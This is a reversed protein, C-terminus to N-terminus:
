YHLKKIPLQQKRGAIQDIEQATSVGGIEVESTQGTLYRDGLAVAEPEYPNPRLQL